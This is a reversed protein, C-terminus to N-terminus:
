EVPVIYTDVGSKKLVGMAWPAKLSNVECAFPPGPVVEYVYAFAKEYNIHKKIYIFGRGEPDWIIMRKEVWEDLDFWSTSSGEDRM